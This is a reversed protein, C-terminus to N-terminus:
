RAVAPQKRAALLVLAGGAPAAARVTRAVALGAADDGRDPNGIGIVITM